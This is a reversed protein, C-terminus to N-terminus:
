TEHVGIHRLPEVLRLALLNRAAAGQLPKRVDVIDGVRHLEQEAVLGLADGAGHHSHVRARRRLYRESASTALRSVISCRGTSRCLRNGSVTTSTSSTRSLRRITARARWTPSRTSSPPPSKSKTGCAFSYRGPM